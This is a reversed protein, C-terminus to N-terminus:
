LLLRVQLFGNPTRGLPQMQLSPHDAIFPAALPSTEFLVSTGPLARFRWAPPATFCSDDLRNDTLYRILLDRNTVQDALVVSAGDVPAFGGSGSGRYSNTALIFDQAPDLPVGQWCLNRIRCGGLDAGPSSLDIEYTLGLITDFLFSPLDSNILPQDAAGPMVRRFGQVSRELWIRLAAGTLRLAMVTNPHMYLDVAHRLLLDGAPIFTFNDPGGRGGAKFPATASLVPLPAHPGDRLRMAVYDAQAHNILRTTACDAVMAFYSHLPRPTRAIPKRAWDVTALHMPRILAEVRADPTVTPMAHGHADRRFIPRAEVRHGTVTWGSPGHALDLDIVGLHSGYAGPMVAPKGCLTGRVPDVGPRAPIDPGPFVSHVHGMVVADVGPLAAIQQAGDQQAGDSLGHGYHGDGLGCHALVVVLDAGAKRLTPLHQAITATMPAMCVRGAIAQKDWVQTEPPLVGIVGILLQHRQGNSDTIERSILTWPPKFRASASGPAPTTNASLCAFPADALAKTLTDFGHSFEHNGINVADYGLHAMAQVMPHPHLAQQAVYDGLSSGQLFDGNDFLVSVPVEARAQAILSATMALGKRFCPQDAHYDHAAIHMHLDSTALLRM